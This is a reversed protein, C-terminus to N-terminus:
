LAQGEIDALARGVSSPNRVLRRVSSWCAVVLFAMTGWFYLVAVAHRPDRHRVEIVHEGAKVFFTTLDFYREVKVTEGNVYVVTSDRRPIPMSLYQERDTTVRWARRDLREFSPGLGGDALEDCLWMECLKTYRGGGSFTLAELVNLLAARERETITPRTFPIRKSKSM